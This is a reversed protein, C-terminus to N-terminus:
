SIFIQPFLSLKLKEIPFEPCYRQITQQITKELDYMESINLQNDESFIGIYEKNQYPVHILDDEKRSALTLAQDWERSEKLHMKLEPSIVYGTFLKVTVREQINTDTEM